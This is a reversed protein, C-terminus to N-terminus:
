VFTVCNFHYEVAFILTVRRPRTLITNQLLRSRELKGRDEVEEEANMRAGYKGASDEWMNGSDKSQQSGLNYYKGRVPM